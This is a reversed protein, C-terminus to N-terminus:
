GNYKRSENDKQMARRLLLEVDELSTQHDCILVEDSSPLPLEPSHMYISLIINWTDQSQCVILNPKGTSFQESLKRPQQLTRTNIENLFQGFHEISLCDNM